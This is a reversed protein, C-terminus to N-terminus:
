GIHSFIFRKLFIEIDVVKIVVFFNGYLYGCEGGISFIAFFNSYFQCLPVRVLFVLVWFLSKLAKPTLTIRFSVM